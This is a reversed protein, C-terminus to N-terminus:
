KRRDQHVKATRLVQLLNDIFACIQLAHERDIGEIFRHHSPNRFAGMIGRFLNAFGEQESADASLEIVTVSPDSKIYTNILSAGVLGADDRSITKIRQELVQTAQNIVRDFNGPASLLDSCRSKLEEDDISNYISGIEIIEEGLHYSFELYSLLQEVKNRVAERDAYERSYRYADQTLLFSAADPVDYGQLQGVIRDFDAAASVAVINSDSSYLVNKIGRLRAYAGLLRDREV